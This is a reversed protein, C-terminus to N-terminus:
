TTEDEVTSGKIGRHVTTRDMAGDRSPRSRIEDPGTRDM